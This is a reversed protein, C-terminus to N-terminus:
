VSPTSLQQQNSASSFLLSGTPNPITSHIPFTESSKAAIRDMDQQNAIADLCKHFYEQPTNVATTREVFMYFPQDGISHQLFEILHHPHKHIFNLQGQLLTAREYLTEMAIPWTTTPTNFDSITLMRWKRLVGEMTSHNKDWEFLQDFTAELSPSSNLIESFYFHSALSNPHMICVLSKLGQEATLNCLNAQNYYAAQHMVLRQNDSPRGTCRAGPTSYYKFLDGIRGNGGQPNRRPLPRVAASSFHGAAPFRRYQNDSLRNYAGNDTTNHSRHANSPPTNRLENNDNPITEMEPHSQNFRQSNSPQNNSLGPAQPASQSTFLERAPRPNNPTHQAPPNQSSGDDSIDDPFLSHASINKIFHSSTEKPFKYGKHALLKHLFFLLVPTANFIMDIKLLNSIASVAESLTM